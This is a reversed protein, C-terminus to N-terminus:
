IHPLCDGDQMKSAVTRREPAMEKICNLCTRIPFQRSNRRDQQLLLHKDHKSAARMKV